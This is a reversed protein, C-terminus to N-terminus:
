GPRIKAIESRFYTLSVTAKNGAYGHYKSQGTTAQLGAWIAALNNIFDEAPLKGAMFRGFGGDNLLM